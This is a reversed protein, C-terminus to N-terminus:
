RTGTVKGTVYSATGAIMEMVGWGVFAGPLAFFASFLVLGVTDHRTWEKDDKEVQRNLSLYTLYTSTAIGGVIGTTAVIGNRNDSLWGM